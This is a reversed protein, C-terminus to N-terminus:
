NMYTAAILLLFKYKKNQTYFVFFSKLSLVVKM